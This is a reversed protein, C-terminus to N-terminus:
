FDPSYPIRFLDIPISRKILSINLPNNELELAIPFYVSYDNTNTSIDFRQFKGRVQTLYINVKLRSGNRWSVKFSQIKLRPKRVILKITDSRYLICFSHYDIDAHNRVAYEINDITEELLIPLYDETKIRGISDVPMFWTFERPKKDILKLGSIRKAQYTIIIGRDQSIASINIIILCICCLFLQKM